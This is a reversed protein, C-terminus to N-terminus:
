KYGGPLCYRYVWHNGPRFVGIARREVVGEKTMKRLYKSTTDYSMGLNECIQMADLRKPKNEKLIEKIRKEVNEM